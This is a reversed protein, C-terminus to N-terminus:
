GGVSRRESARHREPRMTGCVCWAFRVESGKCERRRQRCTEKVWMPMAQERMVDKLSEFATKICFSEGEEVRCCESIGNLNKLKGGYFQKAGSM